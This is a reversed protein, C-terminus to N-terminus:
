RQFCHQCHSKAFTEFLTACHAKECLIQDGAKIARNAKAFRGAEENRDFVLARSLKDEIGFADITQSALNIPLKMKKETEMQRTLMKIMIQADKELKGRKEMPLKSRDLNTM